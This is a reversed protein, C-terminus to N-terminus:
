KYDSSVLMIVNKGSYCNSTPKMLEWKLFLWLLSYFREFYKGWNYYRLELFSEDLRKLSASFWDFTTRKRDNAFLWHIEGWIVEQTFAINFFFIFKVIDM